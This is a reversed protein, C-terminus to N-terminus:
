KVGVLGAFPLKNTRKYFTVAFVGADVDPMEPTPKKPKNTTLDLYKSTKKIQKGAPDFYYHRIVIWDGYFTRLEAEVKAITGDPRFYHFTYETWDGSASFDTFHSTALKGNLKWNYAISYTESKERFRDLAKETPFVRWHAKTQEETATDAVITRNRAGETKKVSRVYKDIEVATSQAASSSCLTLIGCATLGIALLSKGTFTLKM